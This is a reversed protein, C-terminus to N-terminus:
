HTKPKRLDLKKLQYQLYFELVRNRMIFIDDNAFNKLGISYMARIQYRKIKTGIGFKLGYDLRDYENPENGFQIKDKLRYSVSNETGEALSFGYLANGAYIGAIALTKAKKIPITAKILIPLELYCLNKIRLYDEDGMINGSLKLGKSTFLIGTEFSWIDDFPVNVIPGFNFGPKLKTGEKRVVHDDTSYIFQSLNFGGQISIEQAFCSYSGAFFLASFILKKFVNM